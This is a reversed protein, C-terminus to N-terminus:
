LQDFYARTTQFTNPIASRTMATLRPNIVDGSKPTDVIVVNGQTRMGVMATGAVSANCTIMRYRRLFVSDRGRCYLHSLLIIIWFGMMNKRQRETLLLYYGHKKWIPHVLGLSTM